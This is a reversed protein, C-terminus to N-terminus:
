QKCQEQRGDVHQQQPQLPGPQPAGLQLNHGSYEIGYWHLQPAAPPQPPYRGPAWHQWSHHGAGHRPPTQIGVPLPYFAKGEEGSRAPKVSAQDCMYNATCQFWQHLPVPTLTSKRSECDAESLDAELIEAEALAAKMEKEEQMAELTARLRATETKLEIEKNVFAARAKAAQAKARAQIVVM